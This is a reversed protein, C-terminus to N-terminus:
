GQKGAVDVRLGNMTPFSLKFHNWGGVRAPNRQFQFIKVIAYTRFPPTDQSTVPTSECNHLPNM